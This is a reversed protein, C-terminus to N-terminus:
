FYNHRKLKNYSGIIYTKVCSRSFLKKSIFSDYKNGFPRLWGNDKRSRVNTKYTGVDTMPINGVQSSSKGCIHGIKLYKINMPAFFVYLSLRSDILHFRPVRNILRLDRHTIQHNVSHTFAPQCPQIGSFHTWKWGPCPIGMQGIGNHTWAAWHQHFQHRVSHLRQLLLWADIRLSQNSHGSEPVGSVSWEETELSDSKPDVSLCGSAVYFRICRHVDTIRAATRCFPLLLYFPSWFVLLVERQSCYKRSPRAISQLCGAGLVSGAHPEAAGGVLPSTKLLNM